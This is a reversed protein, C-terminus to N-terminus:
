AAPDFRASQPESRIPRVVVTGALKDHWGQKRQDWAVWLYGLGLGLLSVYYAFYRGILQGNSPHGGTRADVIRAHVAMKGPTAGKYIWFLIVAIAPVVWTLLFDMPGHILADSELYQPGYIAYVIPGVILLILLVDILSAGVRVWFGAYALQEDQRAASGPEAM